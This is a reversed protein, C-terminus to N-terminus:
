KLRIELIQYIIRLNKYNHKLNTIYLEKDQIEKKTKHIQIRLGSIESRLQAKEEDSVNELLELEKNLSQIEKECISYKRELENIYKENSKNIAVESQIIDQLEQNVQGLEM